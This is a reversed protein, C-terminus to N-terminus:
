WFFDQANKRTRASITPKRACITPKRACEQPATKPICYWFHYILYWLTFLCSFWCKACSFWSNYHMTKGMAWDYFGQNSRQVIPWEQSEFDCHQERILSEYWFTNWPSIGQLLIGKFYEPLQLHRNALLYHVVSDMQAREWLDSQIMAAMMTPVSTEGHAQHPLSPLTTNQRKWFGLWFKICSNTQAMNWTWISSFLHWQQKSQYPSTCYTEFGNPEFFTQRPNGSQPLVKLFLELECEESEWAQPNRLPKRGTPLKDLLAGVREGFAM